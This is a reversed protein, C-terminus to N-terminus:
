NTSYTIECTASNYHLVGEGLGHAFGRIPNVYLGSTGNPSLEVGSANIVISNAPQNTQGAGKGLAIANKGQNMQGANSGIHVENQGVRWEDNDWFLYDSYNTGILDTACPMGTINISWTVGSVTGKIMQITININGTHRDYKNVRGTFFHENDCAFLLVQGITYALSTELTYEEINGTHLNHLNIYEYLTTFYESGKEGKEGKPGCRGPAGRLNVYWKSQAITGCIYSINVSLHNADRNYSTVIAHFYNLDNYGCVIEQGPAYSLGPGVQMIVHEGIILKDLDIFQNSETAYNDGRTRNRRYDHLTQDGNSIPPNIIDKRDQIAHLKKNSPMCIDSYM